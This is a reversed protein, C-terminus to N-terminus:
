RNGDYAEVLIALDAEFSRFLSADTHNISTSVHFDKDREDFSAVILGDGSYSEPITHSSIIHGGLNKIYELCEGHTNVNDSFFYHHTSVFLFRLNKSKITAAAGRLASTEFGQVDMHLLDLKQWNMEKVLSDVTRIEVSVAQSPDSDMVVDTMIGDDEGAASNFFTINKLKNLEANRQGLALNTPDPECGVVQSGPFQKAFWVSYYAWFSGLEIMTPKNSIRKLVEYFVKEEQPEHHGKLSKIIASMWEDHYGGNEVLLNNFMIQVEKAGVKKIVGADKVKPIYDTDRCSITMQMREEASLRWLGPTSKLLQVASVRHEAAPQKKNKSGPLKM